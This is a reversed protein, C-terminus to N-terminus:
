WLSTPAGSRNEACCHTSSFSPKRLVPQHMEMRHCRSRVAVFVYNNDGASVRRCSVCVRALARARVCVRVARRRINHLPNNRFLISLDSKEIKTIRSIKTYKVIPRASNIHYFLINLKAKNINENYESDPRKCFRHNSKYEIYVYICVCIHTCIYVYTCVNLRSKVVRFFLNTVLVCNTWSNTQSYGVM